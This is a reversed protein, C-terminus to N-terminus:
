QQTTVVSRKEAEDKRLKEVQVERYDQRGEQRLDGSDSLEETREEELRIKEAEGGEEKIKESLREILGKFDNWEARKDPTLELIRGIKGGSGIDISFGSELDIAKTINGAEDM